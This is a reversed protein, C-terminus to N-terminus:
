LLPLPLLHEGRIRPHDRKQEPERQQIITSGAYAPIIGSRRVERYIPVRAGRTHPSSGREAVGGSCGVCHEGRIRPHDRYFCHVLSYSITSGAYAPIIGRGRRGRHRRVRAGRTHPSSGLSISDGSLKLDHEGRIRPHDRAIQKCHVAVITSGAYAPIIWPPAHTASSVM